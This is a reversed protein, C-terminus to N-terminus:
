KQTEKLYNDFYNEGEEEWWQEFLADPDESINLPESSTLPKEKKSVGSSLGGFILKSLILLGMSQFFSIKQINFIDPMLENWLVMFLLSIASLILCMFPILKLFRFKQKNM